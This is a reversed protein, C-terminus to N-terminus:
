TLFIHIELGVGEYADIAYHKILWACPSLFVASALVRIPNSCWWCASVRRGIVLVFMM